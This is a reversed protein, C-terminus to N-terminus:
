LSLFLDAYPCWMTLPNVASVCALLVVGLRKIVWYVVNLAGVRPQASGRWRLVRNGGGFLVLGGKRGLPVARM